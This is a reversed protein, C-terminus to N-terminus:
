TNDVVKRIEKRVVTQLALANALDSPVDLRSIGALKAVRDKADKLAVEFPNTERYSKRQVRQIESNALRYAKGYAQKEDKHQAAYDKVQAIRKERNLRYSERNKALYGMYAERKKAQYSEEYAIICAKMEEVTMDSVTM